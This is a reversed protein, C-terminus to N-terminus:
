LAEPGRDGNRIRIVEEVPYVSIKGDGIEGTRASSLIAEIIADVKEDECLIDIQVRGIFGADYTSGRYVIKPGPEHGYGKVDKFSFFRVGIQALADRVEEFKSLRIIAEIKKM